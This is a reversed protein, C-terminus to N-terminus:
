STYTPTLVCFKPKMEQNIQVKTEEDRKLSKHCGRTLSVVAVLASLEKGFRALQSCMQADMGALLRELAFVTTATECVPRGQLIVLPNM